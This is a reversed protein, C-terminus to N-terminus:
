QVRGGNEAGHKCADAFGYVSVIGGVVILGAGVVVVTGTADVVATFPTLTSRTLPSYVYKDDPSAVISGTPSKKEWLNCTLSYEKFTECGGVLAALLVVLLLNLWQQIIKLNTMKNQM